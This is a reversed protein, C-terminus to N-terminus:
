RGEGVLGVRKYRFLWQNFTNKEVSLMQQEASPGLQTSHLFDKGKPLLPSEDNYFGGYEKSPAFGQVSPIFWFCDDSTNAPDNSDYLDIRYAEVPAPSGKKRAEYQVIRYGVVSHGWMPKLKSGYFGIEFVGLSTDEAYRKMLGFGGVGFIKRGLESERPAKGFVTRDVFSAIRTGLNMLLQQNDFMRACELKASREIADQLARTMAAKGTLLKRLRYPAIREARQSASLRGGKGDDAPSGLVWAPLGMDKAVRSAYAPHKRPKATALQADTLLHPLVFWQFYRITFMSIGYCTGANVFKHKLPGYEQYSEFNFFDPADLEREFYTHFTKVPKGSVTFPGIQAVPQAPQGAAGVSPANRLTDFDRSPDETQALAGSTLLAFGLLCLISWRIM